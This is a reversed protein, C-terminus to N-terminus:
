KKEKANKFLNFYLKEYSGVMSKVDFRGAINFSEAGMRERLERDGALKIIARSLNVPKEVDIVFGNVKNEVLEPLAGSDSCIVPLGSAMAEVLALGFAEKYSPFVFIDSHALLRPIDNRLGLFEVKGKLKLDDVMNQLRERDPGDGVLLLRVNDCIGSVANVATILLDQRKEVSLRGIHILRVTDDTKEVPKRGYKELNIGHYILPIDKGDFYEELREKIYKSVAVPTFGFSKIAMRGLIGLNKGEIHMDAHITHVRVPVRNFIAPVLASKIGWIHTHLIDAKFEKIIKSLNKVVRIFKFPSFKENPNFSTKENLCFVKAGTEELRKQCILDIKEEIVVVAPEFKEKDCHQLLDVSANGNRKGCAM